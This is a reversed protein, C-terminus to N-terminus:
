FYSYKILKIRGKSYITEFFDEVFNELNIGSNEIMKKLYDILNKTDEVTLQNIAKEYLEFLDEEIGVKKAYKSWWKLPPAWSRKLNFFLNTAITLTKYLNIKMDLTNGRDQNKKVYGFSVLLNIWKMKMRDEHTEEPYYALKKRWDELKGTKDELVMGESYASHDIDMPSTLQDQFISDAWYTFDILLRKPNVSEDYKLIAIDKKNLSDFFDQTVYILLDYDTTPEAFRTARSGWLMCGLVYDKKMYEKLETQVIKNEIDEISSIKPLTYKIKLIIM